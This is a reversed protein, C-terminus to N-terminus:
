EEHEENGDDDNDDDDDDDDDDNINIIMIRRTKMMMLMMMMMIMKKLAINTEGNDFQIKERLYIVPYRYCFAQSAGCQVRVANSPDPTASCM